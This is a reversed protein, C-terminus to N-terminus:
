SKACRRPTLLRFAIAMFFEITGPMAHIPGGAICRMAIGSTSSFIPTCLALSAVALARLSIEITRNAAVQLAVAAAFPGVAWATAIVLPKASGASM